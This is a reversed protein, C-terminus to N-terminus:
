PRRGTSKRTLILIYFQTEYAEYGINRADAPTLDSLKDAAQELSTAYIAETSAAQFNGFSAQRTDANIASFLTEACTNMEIPFAHFANSEYGSFTKYASNSYVTKLFIYSIKVNKITKPVLRM